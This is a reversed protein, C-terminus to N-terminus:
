RGRGGLSRATPIGHGGDIVARSRLAAGHVPLGGRGLHSGRGVVARVRAAPCFGQTIRFHFPSQGGQPRLLGQGRGRLSPHFGHGGSLAHPPLFRRVAQFQRLHGLTLGPVLEARTGHPRWQPM